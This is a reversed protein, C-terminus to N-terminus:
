LLLGGFNLCFPKSAAEGTDNQKQLSLHDTQVTEIWLDEGSRRLVQVPLGFQNQLGQEFDAVSTSPEFAFVGERCFGRVASLPTRDPLAALGVSGQQTRHPQQYFELKLCSFNKAFSKKLEGITTRCSLNLEM